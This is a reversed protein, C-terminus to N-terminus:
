GAPPFIEELKEFRYRFIREVDKQVFLRNVLGALLWGRPRYLVEDRCLTRRGGDLPEFTHTHHWLAYPGGLQTDVFRRPPDWDRIETRWRIPVRHVRLRYELILGSHMEIPRPTLVEFRLFAPTIAELNHADAFFPFIREVPHDLVQEARLRWVRGHVPDTTPTIHISTPSPPM